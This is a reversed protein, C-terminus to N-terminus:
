DCMGFDYELKTNTPIYYVTALIYSAVKSAREFDEGYNATFDNAEKDMVFDDKYFCGKFREVVNENFSPYFYLMVGHKAGSSLDPWDMIQMVTMDNNKVNIMAGEGVENFYSSVTELMGDFIFGKYPDVFVLSKPLEIRRNIKSIEKIQQLQTNLAKSKEDEHKLAVVIWGITCAVPLILGVAIPAGCSLLLAFVGFSALTLVAFIITNKTSKKM